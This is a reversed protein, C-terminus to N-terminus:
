RKRRRKNKQGSILLREIVLNFRGTCASSERSTRSGSILLREIVLNFCGITVVFRIVIIEAQFSFGSSLSISVDDEFIKISPRDLGSILLREIVLNFSRM